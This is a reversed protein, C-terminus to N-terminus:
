PTAKPDDMLLIFLNGLDGRSIRMEEDLYTTDLFGKFLPSAPFPFLGFIYFTKFQVDVRSKSAPTLQAVVGNFFPYTEQNRGKLKKTDLTQFIPGFPRFFPLRDAGLINQSTTYVLKWRGNILPSRVPSPTPNARELQRVLKEVRDIAKSDANVGRDLGKIAELVKKKQYEKFKSQSQM